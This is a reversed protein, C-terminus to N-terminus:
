YLALVYGLKNFLVVYHFFLQTNQFKKEWLKTLSSGGFGNDIWVWSCSGSALDPAMM